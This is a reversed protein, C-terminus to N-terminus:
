RMVPLSELILKDPFFMPPFAAGTRNWAMKERLLAEPRYHSFATSKPKQHEPPLELQLHDILWPHHKRLCCFLRLNAWSCAYFWRLHAISCQPFNLRCSAFSFCAGMAGMAMTWHMHSDHLVKLRHQKNGRKLKKWDKYWQLKLQSSIIIFQFKTLLDCHFVHLLDESLRHGHCPLGTQWTQQLAGHICKHYVIYTKYM